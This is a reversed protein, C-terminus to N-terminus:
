SPFIPPIYVAPPDLPLFRALTNFIHNHLQKKALGFQAFVRLSVGCFAEDKPDALHVNVVHSGFDLAEFRSAQGLLAVLTAGGWVFGDGFYAETLDRGGSSATFLATFNIASWLRHFETCDEPDASGPGSWVKGNAADVAFLDRQIRAMAADFLGLGRHLRERTLLEADDALKKEQPTGHQGMVAGFRMCELAATAQRLKEARDEGGQATVSVVAQFPLAQRLDAVEERMLSEELMQFIVVANGIQRFAHFVETQLDRYAMIEKLRLQFFGMAGVSGYDFAPLKCKKPMGETLSTVYPTLTNEIEHHVLKLMEDICMAVGGYGLLRVLCAFHEAGLFHQQQECVAFHAANLAKSGCFYHPATRPPADRTPEGDGFTPALEPVTFRRTTTSYAWNPMIDVTLEAFVHLSIRGYPTTVAENAEQLLDSFPDLSLHTSLLSHTLRAQEVLNDLELISSLNSSEFRGIAVDLAKKIHINMRQSLLHNLDVSRGLVQLHRQRLLPLYRSPGPFSAHCNQESALRKFEKDLLMAAAHSKYFIFIQESLRFVFQDFCLDVEAEVEDYLWQLKFKNLAYNASDNYLDLPYLVLEMVSPDKSTLVESILIWPLSMEIPFQIRKGASLELFFERFWFQSLDAAEQLTENFRLLHDFFLSRAYFAELAPQHKPDIEEKLSKKKEDACLSELMTRLMFLQTSGLGCQRSRRDPVAYKLDKEGKLFPDDTPEAGQLWDACTARIGALVARARTKKKKTTNRIIDRLTVQVFEQVEDHIDRRIAATLIGEMAWLTRAASKIMSVIQVLAIREEGLYNYRMAKEYAEASDSCDRNTYKDTPHALKWANLEIISATWHSLLRLGRVAVESPKSGSMNALQGSHTKAQMLSADTIFAIYEARFDEELRVINYQTEKVIQDAAETGTQWKAPDFNPSMKLFSLLAIQMDGFLPVIPLSKFMSDFRLLDIQKHKYVNPSGKKKADGDMLFLTFAAVKLLLHKEAPLVYQRQEYMALCENAVEALVDDYRDIEQLSQQLKTTISHQMALFLGVEREEQIDAPDIAAAGRTLFGHARKWFSFDNNLCAKMNKLADLVAFMDLMRALTLKTTQSVFGKLREPHALTRIEQTFRAIAQSQFKFLERLKSVRPGLVDVTKQYLELRNEQENSKVQPIARSCSRWTYITGAHKFGEELIVNLSALSQAEEVYRSVGAVFACRDEFNCDYSAMCNVGMPSAEIPPQDDLLSHTRLHQVNRIADQLSTQEAM